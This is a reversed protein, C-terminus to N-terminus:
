GSPETTTISTTPTALPQTDTSTHVFRIIVVTEGMVIVLYFLLIWVLFVTKPLPLLWAAIFGSILTSLMRFTITALAAQVWWDKMEKVLVYGLPLLSLLGSVLCILGATVLAWLGSGGALKWTPFGGLGALLALLLIM